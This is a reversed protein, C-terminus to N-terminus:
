VGNNIHEYMWGNTEDIEGRLNEPYLDVERGKSAKMEELDDFEEYLMRIIESSENSVITETQRDWLVPVTFRGAYQPDAKLYLEKLLKIEPHLPDPTVNENSLSEDPTVFRWSTSTSM